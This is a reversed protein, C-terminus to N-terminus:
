RHYITESCSLLRILKVPNSLVQIQCPLCHELVGFVDNEIYNDEMKRQGWYKDKMDEMKRAGRYEDEMKRQGLYFKDKM